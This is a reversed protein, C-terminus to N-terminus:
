NPTSSEPPEKTRALAAEVAAALRDRAGATPDAIQVTQNERWGGQTRMIFMACTKDPALESQILNGSADYLAARGIAQEFLSAGVAGIMKAKGFQLEGAYHARLAPASIQLIAAIDSPAVGVATLFEVQRRTDDTPTHTDIM